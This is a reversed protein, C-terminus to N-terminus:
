NDSTLFTDCLLEDIDDNDEEGDSDVEDSQEIDEFGPLIEGHNVWVDYSQDFGFEVIHNFITKTPQAKTNM